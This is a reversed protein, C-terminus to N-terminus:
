PETRRGNTVPLVVLRFWYQFLQQIMEHFQSFDVPKVLYSNCRLRYMDSIEERNESTSLVVVPLTSLIPDQSIESMVQRGDMVPMNIDLLVLDPTAAEAFGEERRLYALCERGNVVHAVDVSVDTQKICRRAIYADDPNDEVLLVHYPRELLKM